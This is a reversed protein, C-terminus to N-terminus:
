TWESEELAPFAIFNNGDRHVTTKLFPAWNGKAVHDLDRCYPETIKKEHDYRRTLYLALKRIMSLKRYYNLQTFFVSLVQREDNTSHVLPLDEVRSCNITGPSHFNFKNYEYLIPLREDYAKWCLRLIVTDIDLNPAYVAEDAERTGRRVLISSDTMHITM